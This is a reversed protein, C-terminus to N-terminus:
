LESAEQLEQAHQEAEYKDEENREETSYFAIDAKIAELKKYIKDSVWKDLKNDIMREIKLELNKNSFNQEMQNEIIGQIKEHIEKEVEKQVFKDQSFGSNDVISSYLERVFQERALRKIEDVISKQLNYGGDGKVKELIEKEDFEYVLKM